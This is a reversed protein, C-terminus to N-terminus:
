ARPLTCDLYRPPRVGLLDDRTVKECECVLTGGGGANAIARLWAMRYATTETAGLKLAGLAALCEAQAAPDLAGLELAVALAARRGEDQAIREDLSKEAFVGACDGVAHVFDVTTRLSADVRPVFEGLESCHVLDCGLADLAEVNPVAGIAMCITDCPITNETGAIPQLSEDVAAVRLASVSLERGEAAIPVTSTMLRVGAQSLRHAAEGSGRLRPGVEVVAAVEIGRALAREAFCLADTDSGLIAVRRGRFAEYREILTHVAVVGMVGPIDWGPFGIALDRRGAAVIIRDFGIFTSKGNEYLGALREPLSRTGPGNAFVGWVDAGLRVDVGLAFAEEIDPNGAAIRELLRGRNQVSADMWQGFHFPIDTGMLAPDVPHEDVLVVSLGARAAERAAALGSPGGGIVLLQTREPAPSLKRALSARDIGATM